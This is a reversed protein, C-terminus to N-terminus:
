NFTVDQVKICIRLMKSVVEKRTDRPAGLYKMMNSYNSVQNFWYSDRAKFSFSDFALFLQNFPYKYKNCIISISENVSEINELHDADGKLDDTIIKAVRIFLDDLDILELNTFVSLVVLDEPKIEIEAM